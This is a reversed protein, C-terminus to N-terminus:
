KSADTVATYVPLGDWTFWGDLEIKSM